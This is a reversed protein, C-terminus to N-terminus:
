FRGYVGTPGFFVRAGKKEVPEPKALLTMVTAVGAAVITCALAIDSTLAFGKAADQAGKIDGATVGYTNVKTQADSSFVLAIVGTAGWVVFLGGTVGWPIWPIHRRTEILPAPPLPAGGGTSESDFQLVVSTTDGGAVEITKTAVAKGAITATIKRRGQSVIIASPLPSTGVKEDDVAIDANALSVTIRVQAVRGKLKQIEGEVYARRKNDIAGGGADLYHQFSELAGAYNQTQYYAQALNFLVHYDQAIDYARKFEILAGSFDNEDYLDVARRFHPMAEEIRQKSTRPQASVDQATMAAIAFAVAIYKARM